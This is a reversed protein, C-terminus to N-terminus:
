LIGKTQKMKVRTREWWNELRPAYWLTIICLAFGALLDIVYHHRLYITALILGIAFPLLIWFLRRLYRFAFVLSVTTVASHLSPFACRSTQPLVANIASDSANTIIGGTFTKTFEGILVFRPPAAPFIVYLFYGSYFCLITTVMVYRFEKHM